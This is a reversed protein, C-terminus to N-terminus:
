LRKLVDDIDVGGRKIKTFDVIEEWREDEEIPSIKFVPESRKLVIFSEGKEIERLIESTNERLERLGIISKKKKM